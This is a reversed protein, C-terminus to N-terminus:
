TISISQQTGLIRKNEVIFSTVKSDQLVDFSLQLITMVIIMWVNVLHVRTCINTLYAKTFVASQIM